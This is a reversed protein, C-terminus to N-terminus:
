EYVKTRWTFKGLCLIRSAFCQKPRIFNLRGGINEPDRICWTLPKRYKCSFISYREEVTQRVMFENPVAKPTILSQLSMPVSFRMWPLVSAQNATTEGWLIRQLIRSSRHRKVVFERWILVSVLITNCLAFRAARYGLELNYRFIPNSVDKGRRETRSRPRWRVSRATYGM